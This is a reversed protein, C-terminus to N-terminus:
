IDDDADPEDAQGAVEMAEKCAAVLADWHQPTEQVGALKVGKGCVGEICEKATQQDIDNKVEMVSATVQEYTHKPKKTDTKTTGTKGGATKGGAPTAAAGGGIGNKEIATALRTVAATNAALLEELSMDNELPNAGTATTRRDIQRPQKYLVTFPTDVVIQLNKSNRPYKM